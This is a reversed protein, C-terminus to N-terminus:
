WSFEPRFVSHHRLQHRRHTGLIRVSCRRDSYEGTSRSKIRGSQGSETVFFQIGGVRTFRRQTFFLHDSYTGEFTVTVNGKDDDFNHGVSIATLFNSGGGDESTGAQVRTQIGELNHKLIFNVVGSVGDAGYIASAGGTAVEVRDILTLPISNIDVASSGTSESVTRHGDILVLTRVYGLNRLDLLNLGGLSSGDNSAPTGYGNTQFNGLSGVLAPIRKLYDGLDVTGSHEIQESGVTMTPSPLDFEPRPIRTGTVVVTETADDAIAGFPAAVLLAASALIANRWITLSSNSTM